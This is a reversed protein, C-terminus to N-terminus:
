LFMKWESPLHKGIIKTEKDFARALKNRKPCKLIGIWCQNLHSGPTLPFLARNRQKKMHPM